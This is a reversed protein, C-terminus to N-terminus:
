LETFFFLQKRVNKGDFLIYNPRVAPGFSHLPQCKAYGCFCLYLERFKRDSLQKVYAHEM